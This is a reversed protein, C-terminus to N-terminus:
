KTHTNKHIDKSDEQSRGSDESRTGSRDPALWKEREALAVARRVALVGFAASEVLLFPM